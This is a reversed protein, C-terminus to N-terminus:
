FILYDYKVANFLTEKLYFSVSGGTILVHLIDNVHSPTLLEAPHDAFYLGLGSDSLM